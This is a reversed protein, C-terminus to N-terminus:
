AVLEPQKSNMKPIMKMALTLM